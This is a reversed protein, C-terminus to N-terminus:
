SNSGNNKSAFLANGDLKGQGQIILLGCLTAYPMNFPSNERIM